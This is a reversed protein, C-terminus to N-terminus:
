KAEGKASARYKEMEEYTIFVAGRRKLERIIAPLEQVTENRWEHFLLLSGDKTNNVANDYIQQATVNAAFDNVQPINSTQCLKMGHKEIMAGMRNDVELFPPWYFRPAVGTVEEIADSGGAIDNELAAADLKSPHKHSLSHDLIPHGDKVIAKALEPRSYVNDGILDFDAKVGEAKLIDLVKLTNDSPGDDIMIAVHMAPESFLPAAFMAALSMLLGTKM